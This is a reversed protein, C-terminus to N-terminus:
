INLKNLASININSNITNKKKTKLYKEIIKPFTYCFVIRKVWTSSFGFNEWPVFEKFFFLNICIGLNKETIVVILLDDFRSDM